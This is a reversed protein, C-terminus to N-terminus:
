GCPYLYTDLEERRYQQASCVVDRYLSFALVFELVSLKRNLRADKARLLVAVEGCNIVKNEAVDQSAILISALNVDKGALIDKRINEPIFHAPAVVPSTSLMGLVSDQSTSPVVATVAAPSTEPARSELKTMRSQMDTM